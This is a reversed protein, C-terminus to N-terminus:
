LNSSANSILPRQTPNESWPVSVATSNTIRSLVSTLAEHAYSTTVGKVNEFRGRTWFPPKESIASSPAVREPFMTEADSTTPVMYKGAQLLTRRVHRTCRSLLQDIETGGPPCEQRSATLCQRSPTTCRILFVCDPSPLQDPLTSPMALGCRLYSEDVGM